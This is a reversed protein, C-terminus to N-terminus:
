HLQFGDDKLARITDRIAADAIQKNGKWDNGQKWEGPNPMPLYRLVAGSSGSRLVLPTTDGPKGWGPPCQTAFPGIPMNKEPRSFQDASPDVLADSAVAVMHGDWGKPDNHLGFQGTGEVGVSWAGPPYQDEPLEADIAQVMAHNLYIVTVPVPRAFVGFYRAAAIFVRTSMLCSREHHTRLVADRVTDAIHTLGDLDTM